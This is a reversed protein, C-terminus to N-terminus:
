GIIQGDVYRAIIQTPGGNYIFRQLRQHLTLPSNDPIHDRIVLADFSYGPELSGTRGFFAGNGKTAMYFAAELSLHASCSGQSSLVKSAQIAAVMGRGMSLAHAAGVDTGLGVTVGRQQWQLLPMVGSALNFNADPCHVAIVGSERLMAVEMDELYICHAMLTPTQGWLGFHRYVDAYSTQQPFLQRVWAIEGRSEGLHSQVPLGERVAMEGLKGLLEPSCSPAFRPTLIPRVRPHDRYQQVLERTERLGEEAERLLSAPAHRDMEVKGVYAKVGKAILCEFLWRTAALHSTGYVVTHLTGEEVLADVFARYAGAAFQPDAFQAERPFTIQQLWELLELDMGMGMQGHQPAHVHLDTFGPIILCDGYDVLQGPWGPQPEPGLWAVRGQAVGMYSRPFISIKDPASAFIVNGKILM